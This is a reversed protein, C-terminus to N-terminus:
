EAWESEVFAGNRDVKARLGGPLIYEDGDQQSGNPLSIVVGALEWADTGPVFHGTKLAKHSGGQQRIIGALKANISKAQVQM